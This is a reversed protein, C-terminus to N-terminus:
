HHNQFTSKRPPIGLPIFRSLMFAGLMLAQMLPQDLIMHEVFFLSQHINVPHFQIYRLAAASKLYLPISTGLKWKPKLQFFTM